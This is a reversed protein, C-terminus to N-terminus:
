ARRKPYTIALVTATGVNDLETRVVELTAAPQNHNVMGNSLWWADSYWSRGDMIVRPRYKTNDPIQIVVYVKSDPLTSPSM